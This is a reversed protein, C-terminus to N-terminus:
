PVKGLQDILAYWPVFCALAYACVVLGGVVATLLVPLFRTLWEALRQARRHYSDALSRLSRCVVSQPLAAGLLWYVFAPLGPGAASPRVLIQGDRLNSALSECDERLRASGSGGGALCLAEVMPINHEILLALLDACTATQSWEAVQRPTGCWWRNQHASFAAVTGTRNWWWVIAVLGFVLPLLSVWLPTQATLVVIWDLNPPRKGILDSNADVILPMWYYVLGVLGTYALVCLLLPYVFAWGVAKRLEAARRLTAAIGELAAALQGARLGAAVVARFAPPFGDDVSALAQDLGEGSHLREVIRETHLRLARPLDQGLEGLGRELPVGARVLAALEDNLAILQEVTLSSNM